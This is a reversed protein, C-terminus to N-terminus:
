GDGRDFPALRTHKVSVLENPENFDIRLDVVVIGMMRHDNVEPHMM